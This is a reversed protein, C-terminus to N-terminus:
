NVDDTVYDLSKNKIRNGVTKEVLDLYKVHTGGLKIDKYKKRVNESKMPEPTTPEDSMVSM